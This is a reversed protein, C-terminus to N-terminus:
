LRETQSTPHELHPVNPMHSTRSTAHEPHPINPIHSTQSTPHKSPHPINPIHSTQQSTPHKSPHPINPIHSTRSTPHPISAPIHSTSKCFAMFRFNDYVKSYKSCVLNLYNLHNSIKNNHLNYSGNFFWEKKFILKLQCIKLILELIMNQFNPQFTMELTFYFDVVCQIEIMDILYLLDVYKLDVQHFYIMWSLKQFSYYILM